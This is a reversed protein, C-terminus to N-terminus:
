EPDRVIQAIDSLYTWAELEAALQERYRRLMRSRSTVVPTRDLENTIKVIKVDTNAAHLRIMSRVSDPIKDSMSPRAPPLGTLDWGRHHEQNHHVGGHGAPGDCQAIIGYETETPIVQYDPCREPKPTQETM